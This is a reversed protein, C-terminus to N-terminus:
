MGMRDAGACVGLARVLAGGIIAGDIRLISGVM